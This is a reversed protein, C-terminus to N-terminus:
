MTPSPQGKPHFFDLLHRGIEGIDEIELSYFHEISIQPDAIRPVLTAVTDMDLSYINVLRLGRLEGAGPKRLTLKTVEQENVTLPKSLPITATKKSM